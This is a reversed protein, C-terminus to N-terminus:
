PVYLVNELTLLYHRDNTETHINVTGRGQANTIVNGVGSIPKIQSNFTVFANRSNVIHSSTATDALWDSYFIMRDDIEEVNRPDYTDFNCIGASEEATFTIGENAHEHEDETTRHAQERKEAKKPKGGEENENKRKQQTRFCKSGIHGFWGCKNCKPQGLWRCNDTTHTNQRCDCCFVSSSSDAPTTPAHIRDALSRNNTSPSSYYTSNSMSPKSGTTPEKRAKRRGYEEKIIRIFEQSSTLKKPDTEITGQRRGVYPETFADWSPPLSSAIITKFQIDTIRFDENDLVNL